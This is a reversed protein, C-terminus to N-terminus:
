PLRRAQAFTVMRGTREDVLKLNLTKMGCWLGITPVDHLFPNEDHARQLNYNPIRPQLHHVHHLGINGSFFQLVKPLKLYSSGKLAADLYSWDDSRTWYADEFQHQVYFLWVGAAGAILVLPLQIELFARWGVLLILGGVMAAVGINTLLHSHRIRARKSIPILRPEIALSWLPGLTFLVFPSRMLRYGLRGLSSKSRYEAVTWTDIDGAGRRDLDGSTAHHGAHDHTWAHFPNFVLLGTFIGVWHNLKKTPMFSGHGCDHFVIFTRVLFGAAPVSVLLALLYSVDLLFDMAVWLAVYPVVSTLLCLISRRPDAGTYPELPELWWAKARRPAAAVQIPADVALTAAEM